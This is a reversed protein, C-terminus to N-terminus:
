GQVQLAEASRADVAWETRGGTPFEPAAFRNPCQLTFFSSNDDMTPVGFHIEFSYPMNIFDAALIRNRVKTTMATSTRVEQLPMFCGGAEPPEPPDPPEPPEPPDPPDPPEPEPPEPGKVM